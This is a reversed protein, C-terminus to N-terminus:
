GLEAFQAGLFVGRVLDRVGLGRRQALHGVEVVGRISAHGSEELWNSL